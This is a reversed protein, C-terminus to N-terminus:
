NARLLREQNCKSSIAGKKEVPSSLSSKLYCKGDWVTFGACNATTSCTNGCQSVQSNTDGLVDLNSIDNGIYEVDNKMDLCKDNNGGIHVPSAAVNDSGYRKM